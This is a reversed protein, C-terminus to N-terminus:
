LTHEIATSDRQISFNLNLLKVRSRKVDDGEVTDKLHPFVQVLEAKKAQLKSLNSDVLILSFGYQAFVKAVLSGIKNCAGYVIM